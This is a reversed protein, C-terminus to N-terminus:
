SLHPIWYEAKENETAGTASRVAPLLTNRYIFEMKSQLHALILLLVGVQLTATMYVGLVEAEKGYCTTSPIVIQFTLLINVEAM